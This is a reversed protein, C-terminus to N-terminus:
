KLQEASRSKFVRALENFCSGPDGGPYNNTLLAVRISIGNEDVIVEGNRDYINGRTLDSRLVNIVAGNKMEVFIDGPSWAVRWGEAASILHLVRAADTFSDFLHTKFTMNYAIEALAGQQIANTVVYSKGAPFITMTDTADAYLREFEHRSFADRSNVTLLNYMTDYSDLTWANLFDAATKEADDLSGQIHPLAASGMPTRSGGAWASVTIIMVMSM